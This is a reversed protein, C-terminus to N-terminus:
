GHAGKRHAVGTAARLELAKREGDLAALLWDFDPDDRWGQRLCLRRRRGSTDRFALTEDLYVGGEVALSKRKETEVHL